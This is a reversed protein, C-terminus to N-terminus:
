PTEQLVATVVIRKNDVMYPYCSILTVITDNSPAMVEVQTPAVIRSQRVLYTYTRQNTFILVTDGPKLQDLDRFIQGFVDNHASFVLNGKQGPNPTGLHQGVGKKLQDPGDGQVVPHDVKIAPIQIRQAQQPGPTPLPLSAQSQVLPRLHEPIEAENFQTVGQANPPTHGSPLVVDRILPTPSLTPLILATAVEHNLTSLLNFGSYIVFGLGIVASLEVLLLIRDWWSRRTRRRVAPSRAAARPFSESEAEEELPLAEDDGYPPLAEDDASRAGAGAGAEPARLPLHSGYPTPAESRLSELSSRYPEPEVVILRGSRRYHELRVQREARQKDILLQRLEEVTLDEAWRNRPM